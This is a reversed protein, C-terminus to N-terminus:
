PVARASLWYRGQVVGGERPERECLEPDLVVDYSGGVTAVVLHFFVRETESNTLRTFSEVRGTFFADAPPPADGDAPAPTFSPLARKRPAEAQAAEYDAATDWSEVEHAFAAVQLTVAEGAAWTRTRFTPLDVVLPYDGEGVRTGNVWVRVSAEFPTPGPYVAEICGQIRGSGSFHPNAGVSADKEDVAVWVEAGVEDEPQFHVYSGGDFDVSDGFRLARELLIHFSKENTVHFGICSFHNPV